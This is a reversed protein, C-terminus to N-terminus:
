TTERHLVQDEMHKTVREIVGSQARYLWPGIVRSWKPWTRQSEKLSYATPRGPGREELDGGLRAILVLIIWDVAKIVRRIPM